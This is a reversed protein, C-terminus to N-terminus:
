WVWLWKLSFVRRDEMQRLAVLFDDAQDDTWDSAGASTEEVKADPVAAPTSDLEVCTAAEKASTEPETM